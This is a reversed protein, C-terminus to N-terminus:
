QPVRIDEPGRVEMGITRLSQTVREATSSIVGLSILAERARNVSYNFTATSTGASYLVNFIATTLLSVRQASLSRGVLATTLQDAFMVVSPQRPQHGHEALGILDAVVQHSLSSRSVHPDRLELLHSNLKQIPAHTSHDEPAGQGALSSFSFWICCFIKKM